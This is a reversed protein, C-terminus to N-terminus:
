RCSRTSDCTKMRRLNAVLIYRPFHDVAICASGIGTAARELAHVTKAREFVPITPEFGMRPMSRQARKNEKHQETHLYREQSPSIGRGLFGVSQTYPQLDVSLFIVCATTELSSPVLRLTVRHLHIPAHVYLKMCKLKPALHVDTTPKM